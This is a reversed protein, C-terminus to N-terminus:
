LRKFVEQNNLNERRQAERHRRDYNEIRNRDQAVNDTYRVARNAIAEKEVRREDHARRFVMFRLREVETLRDNLLRAHLERRKADWNM